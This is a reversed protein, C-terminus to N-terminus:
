CFWGVVTLAISPHFPSLGDPHLIPGNDPPHFNPRQCSEPWSIACRVRHNRVKPPNKSSPKVTLAPRKNSEHDSQLRKPCPTKSFVDGSIKAAKHQLM